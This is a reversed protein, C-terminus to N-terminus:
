KKKCEKIADEFVRDIISDVDAPDATATNVFAAQILNGVADRAASSGNFAPSVYYADAQEM